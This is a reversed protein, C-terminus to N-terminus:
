KKKNAEKHKSILRIDYDDEELGTFWQKSAKMLPELEAFAKADAAERLLQGFWGFIEVKGWLVAAWGHGVPTAYIPKKPKYAKPDKGDLARILNKAVFAGDELATQAM